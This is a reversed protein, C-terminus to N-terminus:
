SASRVQGYQEHRAADDRRAYSTKLSGLACALRQASVLEATPSLNCASRPIYATSRGRARSSIDGHPVEPRARVPPDRHQRPGSSLRPSCTSNSKSRTAHPRRFPTKVRIRSSSPVEPSCIRRSTTSLVSLCAAPCAVPQHDSRSLLYRLKLRSLPAAASTPPFP